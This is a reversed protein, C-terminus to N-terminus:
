CLVVLLILRVRVANEGHESNSNLSCPLIRCIDLSDVDGDYMGGIPTRLRLAYAYDLVRTAICRFDERHMAQLRPSSQSLSRVAQRCSM